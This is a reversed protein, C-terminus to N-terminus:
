GHMISFCYLMFDKRKLLVVAPTIGAILLTQKLEGDTIGLM